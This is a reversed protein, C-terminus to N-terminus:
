HLAAHGALKMILVCARSALSSAAEPANNKTIFACACAFLDVVGLCVVALGANLFIKQLILGNKRLIVNKM